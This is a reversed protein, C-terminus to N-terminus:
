DGDSDRGGRRDCQARDVCELEGRFGPESVKGVQVRQLSGNPLNMTSGIWHCRWCQGFDGMLGEPHKSLPWM